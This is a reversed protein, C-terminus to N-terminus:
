GNGVPTGNGAALLAAMAADVQSGLFAVRRGVALRVPRPFRGAEILRRITAESFTTERAVDRYTLLRDDL